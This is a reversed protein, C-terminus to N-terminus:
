QAADGDVGREVGREDSTWRQEDLSRSAVVEYRAGEANTVSKVLAVQSARWQIPTFSIDPPPSADRALTIHPKFSQQSDFSINHKRLANAIEQQLALLGAPPQHIGAWAIHNRSFYGLRDLTLQMAPAALRALIDDASSIISAPQSGLFALTLHLNDYPILRGKIHAQMQQLAARTADDPWLAFFLRLTDTTNANM